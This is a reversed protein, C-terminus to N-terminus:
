KLHQVCRAREEVNNALKARAKALEDEAKTLDFGYDHVKRRLNSILRENKESKIPNEAVIKMKQIQARLVENEQALRKKEGEDEAAQM